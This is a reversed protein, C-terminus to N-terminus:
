HWLTSAEPSKRLFAFPLDVRGNGAALHTLFANIEPAAMEAPHRKDHFLIFRKCWNHYCDETRHSFRRVRCAARLRDLLKPQQQITPAPPTAVM